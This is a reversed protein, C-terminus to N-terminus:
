FGNGNTATTDSKTVLFYIGDQALAEKILHCSMIHLSVTKREQRLLNGRLIDARLSGPTKQWILSQSAYSIYQM